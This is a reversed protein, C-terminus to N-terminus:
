KKKAKTMISMLLEQNVQEVRARVAQLEDHEDYSLKRDLDDLEGLLRRTHIEARKYHKPNKRAPRGTSDLSQQTLEVAVQIERLLSEGAERKGERYLLAVRKVAARAYDTALRARREPIAERKVAELSNPTEAAAWSGLAILAVLVRAPRAIM